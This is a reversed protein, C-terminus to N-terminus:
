TAEIESPWEHSTWRFASPLHGWESGSFRTYHNQNDSLWLNYSITHFCVIYMWCTVESVGLFGLITIKIIQCGCTIHFQTFVIYMWCTVESVGLFGLITIKITQCGCTIHSQTFVIYMWCTVESVGLFGPITIKITQCGCTIRSQTFVIYM